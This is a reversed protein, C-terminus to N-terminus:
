IYRYILIGAAIVLFSDVAIEILYEKIFDITEGLFDVPSLLENLPLPDMAPMVNDTAELSPLAGAPTDHICALNMPNNTKKVPM